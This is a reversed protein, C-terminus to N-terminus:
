AADVLEVLVMKAADGRRSGAQIIRTYGSSRKNFRERGAYLQKVLDKDSLLLSIVRRRSSLDGKKVLTIIGDVLKRLEKARAETTELRNRQFLSVALSKLMAMRQDTPKHLKNYGYKHRM